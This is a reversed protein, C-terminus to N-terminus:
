WAAKSVAANIRCAAAATLMPVYQTNSGVEVNGDAPTTPKANRPAKAGVSPPAPHPMNHRGGM